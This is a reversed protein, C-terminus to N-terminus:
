VLGVILKGPNNFEETYSFGYDNITNIVILKM